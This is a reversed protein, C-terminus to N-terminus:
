QWSAKGSAADLTVTRTLSGSALTVTGGAAPLGYADFTAVASGGFDAATVRCKYPDGALDVTLGSAMGTGGTVVYRHTTLNFTVTQAAGTLRANSRARDLDAVVKRAAFDVKYRAAANGMRPIAISAMTAGVALVVVMELLSFARRGRRRRAASRRTAAVAIPTRSM